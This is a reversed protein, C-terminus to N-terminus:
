TCPLLEALLNFQSEKRGSAVNLLFKGLADLGVRFVSKLRRGCKKKKIPRKRTEIEGSKLAFCLALGLLLLLTEVREGRSLHTEEFEFGRSKLCGFM